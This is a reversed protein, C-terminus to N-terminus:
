GMQITRLPPSLPSPNLSLAAFVLHIFPRRYFYFPQLFSGVRVVELRDLGTLFAM